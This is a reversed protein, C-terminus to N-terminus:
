TLSPRDAIIALHLLRNFLQIAREIGGFEKKLLDTLDSVMLGIKGPDSLVRLYDRRYFCFQLLKGCLMVKIAPVSSADVKKARFTDVKHNRRRGIPGQFLVVDAFSLHSVDSVVVGEQVLQILNPSGAKM